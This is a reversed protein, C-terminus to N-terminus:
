MFDIKASKLLDFVTKKVIKSVKFKSTQFFQVSSFIFFELFAFTLASLIPLIATKPADFHDSNIKRLIQTASFDQFKVNHITYEWNPLWPRYLKSDKQLWPLFQTSKLCQIFTLIQLKAM